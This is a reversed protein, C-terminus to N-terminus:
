VYLFLLSQNYITLIFIYIKHIIKNGVSVMIIYLTSLIYISLTYFYCIYKDLVRLFFVLFILKTIIYVYKNINVINEIFTLIMFIM